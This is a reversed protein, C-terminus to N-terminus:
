LAITLYLIIIAAAGINANAGQLTNLSQEFGFLLSSLMHGVNTPIQISFAFQVAM